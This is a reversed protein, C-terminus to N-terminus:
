KNAICNNDFRGYQISSGNAFINWQSDNVYIIWESRYTDSISYIGCFFKIQVIEIQEVNKYTRPLKLRVETPLPYVNQDRDLSDVMVIQSVRKQMM